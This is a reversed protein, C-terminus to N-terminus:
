IEQLREAMQRLQEEHGEIRRKLEELATEHQICWPLREEQHEVVKDVKKELRAVQSSLVALKAHVMLMWPGTALVAASIVGVIIQWEPHNM